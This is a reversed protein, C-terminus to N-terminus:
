ARPRVASTQRPEMPAWPPGLLVLKIEREADDILADVLFELGFAVFILDTRGHHFPDLLLDISM